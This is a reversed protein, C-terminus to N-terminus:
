RRGRFRRYRDVCNNDDVDELDVDEPDEIEEVDGTVERIVLDSDVIDELTWDGDQVKNKAEEKSAAEVEIWEGYTASQLVRYKKTM